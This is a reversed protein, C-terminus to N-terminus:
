IKVEHKFLGTPSEYIITISDKPNLNKNVLLLRTKPLNTFKADFKVKECDRSMMKIWQNMMIIQEKLTLQEFIEINTERAKVIYNCTDYVKAKTKQLLYQFIEKNKAKSVEFQDNKSNYIFTQKEQNDLLDELHKNAWHLYYLYDNDIYNQYAMKYKNQRDNSTYLLYIGDNFRIKQNLHIKRLIQINTAKPNDLVKSLLKDSDNKYLTDYLYPVRLIAKKMEGDEQYSVAFLYAQALNTYGGYKSTDSMPNDENLTIPILNENGKPLRTQGYFEGSVYDLKFTIFADRRLCNTKIKLQNENNKFYNELITEMNITEKEGDQIQMYKERIYAKSFTTSLLNGSVVNLYADVAHHADNVDRNKVIKLHKRIFSPYQSKSFIIDTHPYKLKLIDRIIVNSYNIVNIQRSVFDEVEELKIKSTRTLNGYKKESIAKKQLLFHWLKKQEDQIRSPVPYHNGKAKQNVEREVLVLNDLSDDKILSKPIIHDTDYKTSNLLEDLVIKKGTYLDIGLQKFYLYIHKGKLKVKDVEELDKLLQPIDCLQNAKEDKLLNTLFRNLEKDRALQNGDQGKRKDDNNRTVEIFIKEPVKQHSAKIIDDIILLTQRISRQNLSPVSELKEEILDEITKEQTFKQNEQEILEKFHYQENHLIMQFNQNTEKMIDLISHVVGYDDTYVINQLLKYSLPAWKKTPLTLIANKQNEDLLSENKLLEKLSKKDDAYITALTIYRELEEKQKELNFSKMLHAHSSAEFPIEEHINSFIIDIPSQNHWKALEKKLQDLTTKPRSILYHYIKEKEQLSLYEGNVLLVNLRDYILYDEYALAKKPMVTEGSLYTCNNTLKKMFKERTKNEDFIEDFNWPTVAAFQKREVNSYPSKDNLPGYYYPVRFTFLLVLKDRIDSLFPYKTSANDIIMELEDLHLQHPIVSTSQIAITKLLTKNEAKELLIKLDDQRELSVDNQYKELIEKITKNFEDISPRKQNSNKHIFASYNKPANKDKFLKFYWRDNNQLGKNADIDIIIDKLKKLDQRHTEYVHVMATSLNPQDKLLDNLIVFDYMEKAIAILRFDDQLISAKEEFLPDSFQINGEYGLKSLDFKGGVALKSFCSIYPELSECDAYDFLKKIEKEKTTKNTNKNLLIEKLVVIQHNAIFTKEEVDNGYLEKYKNILFQNLQEIQQVQLENTKIKGERLFNGRYKMIHHIALYVHRLDSFADPQNELLSKRLHWITPYKKYFQSEEQKTKFLINRGIGKDKKDVEWYASYALRIFFTSDIAQIEQAFLQNLLHIRYKRREMRRRSSRIARTGKKDKAEQFIRAGWAHTGKLKILNYEQDTVAWGVSNTGMDLGIYYNKNM